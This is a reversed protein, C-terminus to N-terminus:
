IKRALMNIKQEISYTVLSRAKRSQTSSSVASFMVLFKPDPYGPPQCHKIMEKIHLIIKVRYIKATQLNFGTKNNPASGSVL